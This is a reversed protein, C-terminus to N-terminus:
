DTAPTPQKVNRAKKRRTFERLLQLGTSTIKNDSTIAARARLASMRIGRLRTDEGTLCAPLPMNYYLRALIDAHARSNLRIGSRHLRWNTTIPRSPSHDIRHAVANRLEVDTHGLGAAIAKWSCGEQRLEYALALENQPITAPRM